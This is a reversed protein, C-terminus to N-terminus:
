RGADTSRRRDLNALIKDISERFGMDLLRDAEDLIVHRCRRRHLMTEDDPRHPQLVAIMCTFWRLAVGQM